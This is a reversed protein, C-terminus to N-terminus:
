FDLVLESGYRKKPTRSCLTCQISDREFFIQGGCYQRPCQTPYVKKYMAKTMNYLIRFRIQERELESPYAM